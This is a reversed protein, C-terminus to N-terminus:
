GIDDVMTILNKLLSVDIEKDMRFQRSVKHGRKSM